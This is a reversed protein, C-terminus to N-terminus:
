GNFMVFSVMTHIEKRPIYFYVSVNFYCAKLKKERM